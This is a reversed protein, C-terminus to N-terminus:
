AAAHVERADVYERHWLEFMLLTWIQDSYDRTGGAHANCMAKVVNADFYGRQRFRPSLLTDRVVSDLPGRLCTGLPMTFGHKKRHVIDQPVRGDLLTKLAVKTTRGKLKLSRPLRMVFEVFNQDLLPARVELAHAMSMRDVKVLIDDVLYTKLDVYLAKTLPDAAECHDYLKRFNGAPDCDRLLTRLGPDYLRMKYESDFVWGAHKAAYSADPTLGIKRLTNRGKVPPLWSAVRALSRTGINGLASRLKTELCQLGHRSYGAFLEDGGDGSLAVTVHRRAMESVYYMPVASSDAFPEDFLRALKPILETINPHVVDEHHECGRWEAVRRAYALEDHAPDDFGVSCTVVPRNLAESMYTVVSTSDVGGSLFAGLPVDSRLRIKVAERLISDLEELLERDSRADPPPCPVDWYQSISMSEATCILIHGAPLKRVSKFITMPSPVYLLSLYSDLAILDIDRSIQSDQLIAKIESGFLLARGPLLAYYMPKKGLRDRALILQKRRTDWVALGFMGRLWCVFKEKYEEYLHVIVETDSSTRLNHGKRILHERLEVYNYIEGNFVTWVTGDENSLPQQGSQLDIISLRRHGLGVSEDFHYGEEDPGRHYLSDCMGKVLAPPVTEDRRFVFKGAIGCM